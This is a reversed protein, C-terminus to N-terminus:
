SVELDNAVHLVGHIALVTEQAVQKLHYSTVRGTLFVLRRHVAVNVDRLAAYGTARLAHTVHEALRIDETSYVGKRPNPTATAQAM